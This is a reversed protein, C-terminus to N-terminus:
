QCSGVGDGGHPDAQGRRERAVLLPGHPHALHICGQLGGGILVVIVPLELVVMSFELCDRVRAMAVSGCKHNGMITSIMPM